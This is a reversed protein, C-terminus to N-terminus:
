KGVAAAMAENTSYDTVRSVHLPEWQTYPLYLGRKRTLCMGRVRQWFGDDKAMRVTDARGLRADYMAEAWVASGTQHQDTADTATDLASTPIHLIHRLDGGAATLMADFSRFPRPLGAWAVQANIGPAVLVILNSTAAKLM